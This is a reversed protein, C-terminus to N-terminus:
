EEDGILTIQETFIEIDDELIDSIGNVRARIVYVTGMVGVGEYIFNPEDYQTDTQMVLLLGRGLSAYVARINLEQYLDPLTKADVHITIPNSYPAKKIIKPM